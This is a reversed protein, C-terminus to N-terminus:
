TLGYRALVFQIRSFDLSKDVFHVIQADFHFDAFERASHIQAVFRNWSNQIPVTADLVDLLFVSYLTWEGFGAKQELTECRRPMIQSFPEEGYLIALYARLERLRASELLKFDMIFDGLPMSRRPEVQLIRAINEVRRREYALHKSTHPYRNYYLIPTGDSFLNEKTIPQLLVTDASLCAVIPTGCIQDAHLRIVQQRYWGPWDAMAEPLVERDELVAIQVGGSFLGHRDVEALVDSKTSTVIVINKLLEFNRICSKLSFPMLRHVDAAGACVLVDVASDVPDREINMSRVIDFETREWIGAPSGAPVNQSVSMAGCCKPRQAPRFLTRGRVM